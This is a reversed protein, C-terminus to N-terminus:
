GNGNRFASGLSVVGIGLSIASKAVFRGRTQNQGYRFPWPNPGRRASEPSVGRWAAEEYYILVTM